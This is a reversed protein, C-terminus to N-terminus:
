CLFDWVFHFLLAAPEMWAWVACFYMVVTVGGLFASVRTVSLRRLDRILHVSCRKIFFAMKPGGAQQGHLSLNISPYLPFPSFTLASTLNSLSLAFM